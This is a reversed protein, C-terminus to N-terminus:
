GIKQILVWNGTREEAAQWECMDLEFRSFEIPSKGYNKFVFEPMSGYPNEKHVQLSKLLSLGSQLPLGFMYGEKEYDKFCDIFGGSKAIDVIDKWQYDSWEFPNGILKWQGSPLKIASEKYDKEPKHTKLYKTLKSYDNLQEDTVGNEINHCKHILYGMYVTSRITAEPVKVLLGEFKETKIEQTM